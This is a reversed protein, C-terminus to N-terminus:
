CCTLRSGPTSSSRGSKGQGGADLAKKLGPALRVMAEFEQRMKRVDDLSVKSIPTFRARAAEEAVRGLDNLAGEVQKIQQGIDQQNLEASVPIKIGSM